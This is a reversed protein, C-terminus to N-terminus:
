AGCKVAPIPNIVVPSEMNIVCHPSQVPRAFQEDNIRKNREEGNNNDNKAAETTIVQVEALVVSDHAKEVDSKIQEAPLKQDEILNVAKKNRYVFYLVM